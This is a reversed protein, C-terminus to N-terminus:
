PNPQTKLRSYYRIIFKSHEVGFNKVEDNSM